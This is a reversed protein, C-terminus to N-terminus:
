VTDEDEVGMMKMKKMLYWRYRIPLTFSSKSNLSLIFILYHFHISFIPNPNLNIRQTTSRGRQSRGYFSPCQMRMMTMWHRVNQRENSEKTKKDWFQKVEM